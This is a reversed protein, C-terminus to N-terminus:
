PANLPGTAVKTKTNRIRKNYFMLYTASRLPCEPTKGCNRRQQECYRDAFKIKKREMTIEAFSFRSM